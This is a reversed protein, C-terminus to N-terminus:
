KLLRAARDLIEGALKEKSMLPLDETEGNQHFIRVINTDTGFGAGEHTLDNAVIFDANKKKLKEVSYLSLKETEMSFGVLVFNKNQGLTQLIDPNKELEITNIKDKKIKGDAQNKVYFDGVAAAKIVIDMDKSYKMVEGHMQKASQIYITNVKKPPTICVKGSILTVNAGRRAAVRALAYGMKGSSHNTIYRIDDIREMTPGATILVNKGALDKEYLLHTIVEEIIDDVDALKGKGVDGCALRGGEPDVFVYGLKKLREINETTIPNEYMQTNMAPAIIVKAKTAMVTTTVINDAIGASIKGIINATAPVILMVDAAKALSIHEIDWSKVPDFMGTAVANQSLSQFTLPTVFKQAADTMCVRVNAGLKKLKSIIECVKYAAIGGCVGIVVTKGKLM